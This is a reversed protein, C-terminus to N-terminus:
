VNFSLLRISSSVKILAVVLGGHTPFNTISLATNTGNILTTSATVLFMFIYYLVKDGKKKSEHVIPLDIWICLYGCFLLIAAIPIMAKLGFRARYGHPIHTRLEVICWFTYAALIGSIATVDKLLALLSMEGVGFGKNSKLSPSLLAYSVNFDYFFQLIIGGFVCSWRGPIMKMAQYLQQFSLM